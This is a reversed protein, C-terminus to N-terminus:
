EGDKEPEVSKGQGRLRFDKRKAATTVRDVGEIDEPRKVQRRLMLKVAAASKGPVYFAPLGRLKVKFDMDEKKVSGM